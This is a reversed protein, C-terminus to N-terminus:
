TKYAAMALLIVFKIKKIKNGYNNSHLRLTIIDLVFALLVTVRSDFTEFSKEM